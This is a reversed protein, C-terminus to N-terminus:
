NAPEVHTAGELFDNATLSGNSFSETSPSSKHYRHCTICDHRAGGTAGAKPAHCQACNDKGPIDVLKSENAMEALSLRKAKSYSGPHCERCQMARHAHHDFHAKPLWVNPVKPPAVALSQDDVVHCERCKNAITAKAATLKEEIEQTAGTPIRTRGPIPRELEALIGPKKTLSEFWTSRALFTLHEDLEDLRLGHPVRLQERHCAGCHQDFDIPEFGTLTAATENSNATSGPQHCSACELQVLDTLKGGQPLYRERDSLSMDNYSFHDGPKTESLDPLSSLGLRMHRSHSFALNGPDGQEIANAVSKFEPHPQPFGSVGADIVFELDFSHSRLDAHCVTCASDDVQTLDVSEGRHEQHCAACAQDADTPCGHHDAVVHCAQCRGGSTSTTSTLRWAGTRLPEGAVHCAACNSEWMAHTKSIPGHTAALTGSPTAFCWIAFGIGGVIAAIVLGLRVLSAADWARYHDLRIRFAREKQTPNNTM